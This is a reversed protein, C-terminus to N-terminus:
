NKKVNPMNFHNSNVIDSLLALLYEQVDPNDPCMQENM